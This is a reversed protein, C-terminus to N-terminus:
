LRKQACGRLHSQAFLNPSEKEQTRQYAKLRQAEEVIQIKAKEDLKEAIESLIQKKEALERSELEKDPALVVRVFHPNDLFYKQILQLYFNEEKKRLGDFLSHIM